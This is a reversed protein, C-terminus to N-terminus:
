VLSQPKPFLIESEEAPNVPAHLLIDMIAHADDAPVDMEYLAFLLQERLLWSAVAFSKSGVRTEDVLRLAMERLKSTQLGIEILRRMAEARPPIARDFRRWHDIGEMLDEPLSTIVRTSMIKQRSM